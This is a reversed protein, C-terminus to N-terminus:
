EGKTTHRAESLGPHAINLRKSWRQKAGVINAMTLQRPRESRSWQGGTSTHEDKTWGAARVSVGTEDELLYTIIRQFGIAKASRACAAYLMSCANKTGDTALRTVEAVENQDIMRALPRGVIAAGVIQQKKDDYIGICFRCGRVPKHHRHLRGVLGNAERLTLPITHIM